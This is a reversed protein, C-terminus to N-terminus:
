AVMEIWPTSTPRVLADKVVVRTTRGVADNVPGITKLEGGPVGVACTAPVTSRVVPAKWAVEVLM